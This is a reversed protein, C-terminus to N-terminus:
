RVTPSPLHAPFGLYKALLASRLSLHPKLIVTNNAQLGLPALAHKIDKFTRWLNHTSKDLVFIDTLYDQRQLALKGVQTTILFHQAQPFQQAALRIGATTLIIDGLFATQLWIINHPPDPLIM